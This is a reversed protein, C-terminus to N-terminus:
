RFWSRDKTSIIAGAFGYILTDQFQEDIGGGKVVFNIHNQSWYKHYIDNKKTKWLVVLGGAKQRGNCSYDVRFCGKLGHMGKLSQLEVSKKKTEM